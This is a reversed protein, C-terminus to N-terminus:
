RSLELDSLDVTRDIRQGGQQEALHILDHIVQVTHSRIYATSIHQARAGAEDPCSCLMVHMYGHAHTHSATHLSSDVPWNGYSCAVAGHGMTGHM